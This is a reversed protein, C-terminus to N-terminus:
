RRVDPEGGAARTETLNYTMTETEHSWQSYHSDPRKKAWYDVVSQVSTRPYKPGANEHLEQLKKSQEHIRALVSNSAAIFDITEASRWSEPLFDGADDEHPVDRNEPLFGYLQYAAYRLAAKVEPVTDTFTKLPSPVLVMNAPCTFYRPDNVEAHDQQFKPDDNGWIHCCTWNPRSKANQGVVGLYRNQATSAAVNGEFKPVGKNEQVTCWDAKYLPAKRYTYPAWVPLQAHCQPDIWKTCSALLDAVVMPNVHDRFVEIGDGLKM